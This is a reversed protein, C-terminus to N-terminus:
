GLFFKDWSFGGCSGGGGDMMMYSYGYDECVYHTSYRVQWVKGLFFLFVYMALIM